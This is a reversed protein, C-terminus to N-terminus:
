KKLPQYIPLHGASTVRSSQQFIKTTRASRKVFPKLSRRLRSKPKTAVVQFVMFLLRFSYYSTTLVSFTTLLLGFNASLSYYASALELIVDKSYFGTLFPTGVLALNGILLCTYSFLLIQQLGGFKRVDQENDLAHIVAGATLFLPTLLENCSATLDNM